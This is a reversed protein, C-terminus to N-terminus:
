INFPYFGKKEVKKKEKLKDIGEDILVVVEPYDTLSPDNLRDEVKGIKLILDKNSM